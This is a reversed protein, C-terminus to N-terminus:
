GRGKAARLCHSRIEWARGFNWLTAVFTLQLLSMGGYGIGFSLAETPSGELRDRVLALTGARGLVGFLALTGAFLVM